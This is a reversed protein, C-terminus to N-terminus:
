CTRTKRFLFSDFHWSEAFDSEEGAEDGVGSGLLGTGDSWLGVGGEWGLSASAGTTANGLLGLDGEVGVPTPSVIGTSVLVGVTVSAGGPVGGEAWVWIGASGVASKLTSVVSTGVTDVDRAIGDGELEDGTGRSGVDTSTDVENGGGTSGILLEGEDVLLEGKVDINRLEWATNVTSEVGNLHRQVTVGARGVSGTDLVSSSVTVSLAWVVQLPNASLTVNNSPVWGGGVGVGSETLHTGAARLVIDPLGVADGVSEGGVSALGGTENDAVVWGLATVAGESVVTNAVLVATVEVGESLTLLVEVTWSLGDVGVGLDSDNGLVDRGITGVVTVEDLHSTVVDLVTDDNGGWWVGPSSNTWFVGEVVVETDLLLLDETVVWVEVDVTTHLTHSVGELTAVDQGHGDPDVVSGMEVPEVGWVWEIGILGEGTNGTTSAGLGRTVWIVENGRCWVGLDGVGVDPDTLEAGGEGVSAVDGFTAWIDWDSADGGGASGSGGASGGGGRGSGGGWGGSGGGGGAAGSSGGAAGGGSRGSGGGSGSGGACGRTSTWGLCFPSLTATDSVGAWGDANGSSGAVNEVWVVGLAQLRKGRWQPTAKATM